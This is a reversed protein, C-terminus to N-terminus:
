FSTDLLTVRVAHPLRECVLKGGVGENFEVPVIIRGLADSYSGYVFAVSRGGFHLGKEIPVAKGPKTFFIEVPHNEAYRCMM